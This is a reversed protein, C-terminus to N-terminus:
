DKCVEINGKQEIFHGAKKLFNYNSILLYVSISKKQCVSTLSCLLHPMKPDIKGAEYKPVLDGPKALM